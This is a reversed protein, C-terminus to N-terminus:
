APSVWVKLTGGEGRGGWSQDQRGSFPRWPQVRFGVAADWAPTVAPIARDGSSDSLPPQSFCLGPVTRKTRNGAAGVGVGVGVVMGWLPQAVGEGGMSGGDRQGQLGGRQLLTCGVPSAQQVHQAMHNPLLSAAKGALGLGDRAM